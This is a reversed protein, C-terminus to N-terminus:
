GLFFARIAAVAVAAVLSGLFGYLAIHSLQQEYQDLYGQYFILLHYQIIENKLEEIRTERISRNAFESLSDLFVNLDQALKEDARRLYFPRYNYNLPVANYYFYQNSNGLRDLYLWPYRTRAQFFFWILICMSVATINVYLLTLFFIVNNASITGASRLQSLGLVFAFGAGGFAIIQKAIGVVEPTFEPKISLLSRRARIKDILEKLGEDLSGSRARRIWRDIEAGIDSERQRIRDAYTEPAAM